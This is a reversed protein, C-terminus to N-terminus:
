IDSAAVRRVIAQIKGNSEKMCELVETHTLKNKGSIGCAYNTGVAIGCLPIGLEGCLSAEYASTMNVLNAGMRRLASVEARTEFRPGLTTAIIGGSALSVGVSAAAKEVSSSLERNYPEGMDAHMLEGKGEFRDYFSAHIGFGIFDDLLVLEGPSYDSIIGAAYIALIGSVGADKLAWLNAKYNVKHPPVEHAAGHRPVFVIEQVAEERGGSARGSGGPEGGAANEGLYAEVEGYPTSVAKKRLGGVSYIGSGGLIGLM